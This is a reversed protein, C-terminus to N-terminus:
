RLLFELGTVMKFLLLIEGTYDDGISDSLVTRIARLRCSLLRLGMKKPAATRAGFLGQHLLDLDTGLVTGNCFLSLYVHTAAGVDM